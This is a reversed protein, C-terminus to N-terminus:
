TIFFDLIKKCRKQYTNKKATRYAKLTLEQSLYKNNYLELIKKSLDIYDSENFFLCEGNNCIEKLRPVNSAIIPSRSAMYEFIKIPSMWDVTPCEYTYPALLVDATKHYFPITRNNIFELFQIKSKSRFNSSYKKWVKIENLNGGIILFLFRDDNLIKAAKIITNIGRGKGLSGTYIIIYKNFPLNLLKRIDDKEIKISDYNTIDVADDIVLVKKEPIGVRLYRKKLESSITVIGKFFESKCIKPLIEFQPKWIHADHYELVSPIKNKINYYIIRHARSYCFEFEEDKSVKSIQKEPDIFNFYFYHRFKQYLSKFRPVENIRNNKKFYNSDIFNKSFSNLCNKEIINNLIKPIIGNFYFISKDYFYDINIKSNIGYFTNINGIKKRLINEFFRLVTFVKVYHGLDEFGKAHKIINVSHATLSPIDGASVIQIKM